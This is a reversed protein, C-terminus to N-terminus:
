TPTGKFLQHEKCNLILVNKGVGTLLHPSLSVAAVRLREESSTRLLEETNADPSVLLFKLRQLMRELNTSTAESGISAISTSRAM